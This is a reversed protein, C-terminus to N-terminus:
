SKSGFEQMDPSLPTFHDANPKAFWFSLPTMGDPVRHIKFIHTTDEEDYPAALGDLTTADGLVVYDFRQVSANGRDVVGDRIPLTVEPTVGLRHIFPQNVEYYVPKGDPNHMLLHQPALLDADVGLRITARRNKTSERYVKLVLVDEQWSGIGEEILRLLVQKVVPPQPANDRLLFLREDASMAIQQLDDEAMIASLPTFYVYGVNQLTKTGQVNWRSGRFHGGGLISEKAAPSTHHFLDLIPAGTPAMIGAGTAYQALNAPGRISCQFLYSGDDFAREFGSEAFTVEISQGCSIDVFIGCHIDESTKGLLPALFALPQIWLMRQSRPKASPAKLYIQDPVVISGHRAHLLKVKVWGPTVTDGREGRGFETLYQHRGAVEIRNFQTNLRPQIAM